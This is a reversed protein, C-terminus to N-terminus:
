TVLIASDSTKIEALIIQIYNELKEIHFIELFYLNLLFILFESFTQLLSNEM